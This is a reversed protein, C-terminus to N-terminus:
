AAVRADKLIRFVSARSIGLAAQIDAASKGESHLRLVDAAKERATPARGKYKGDDKAKAIGVVQRELMMEREFQAVAGIMNFMLRGTPTSTDVGLAEIRLGVGKAQLEGEIRLLEPLSRALRDLKTVVLTDGERVYRLCEALKEREAVSSVQESYVRECGLATLKAVQDDFGAQQFRGSTRAYGVLM